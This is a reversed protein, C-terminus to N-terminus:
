IHYDNSIADFYQSKSATQEAEKALPCHALNCVINNISNFQVSSLFLLLYIFLM